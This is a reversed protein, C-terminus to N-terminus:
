QNPNTITNPDSMLKQLSREYRRYKRSSTDPNKNFSKAKDISERIEETKDPGIKILLSTYALWCRECEHKELLAKFATDAEKYSKNATLSDAMHRWYLYPPDHTLKMSQQLITLEQQRKNQAKLAKSYEFWFGPNDPWKETLEQGLKEAENPDTIVLSALQGHLAVINDPELDIAIQFHKAAQENMNNTLLHQGYAARVLSSKPANELAKQYGAEDEPSATIWGALLHPFFSDPYDNCLEKIM